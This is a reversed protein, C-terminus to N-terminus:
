SELLSLEHLALWSQLDSLNSSDTTAAIVIFDSRNQTSSNVQETADYGCFVYETMPGTFQLTPEADGDGTQNAFTVSSDVVGVAAMVDDSFASRVIGAGGSVSGNPNTVVFMSCNAQLQQWTLPAPHTNGWPNFLTFRDTSASYGTVVYAHGGILGAGVSGNTGITVANGANVSNILTQKSSSSLPYNTSNHGLVQSNTNSMWGGEISAYRNTGDRGSKGLENWQAYAKEALAIWLPTNSATASLGMGSYALTGNSFTPLRRNVTVYSAVGTGSVFGSSILGNQFFSGMAGGFFRVTFTDDGNDIFMNQIASSNKAAISIMSAIFYCDGLVGQRSQQITPAGVFLSGTANRYSIGSGVLTPEDTGLFWKDVLNNVHTATSGAVLNGLAQGRYRLNAPNNTVLSRALERVHAPMQFNTQASALFRLDSLEASSINGNSVTSRILQMMEARSIEGDGYLTQLLAAIAPDQLNANTASAVVSVAAVYSASGIRATVRYNGLTTGATFMGASNITGGTASWAISSNNGVNNGFQDVASLRFELAAGRAVNAGGPTVSVNSLNQAVRVTINVSLTDASATIVYDGTRDFIIHSSNNTTALLAQADAPVTTTTWTFDPQMPMPLGFQDVARVGLSVGTGNITTLTGLNQNASNTFVARTVTQAVNFTAFSTVSGTRLGVTYTGARNFTLTANSGSTSLAATGGTPASSTVSTIAPLNAIANGFQDYGRVAVRSTRTAVDIPTASSIASDDPNLLEITTVTSTVLLRADFTKGGGIVRITYAGAQSFTIDVQNRSANLIPEAGSPSLITQWAFEPQQALVTGFQNRAFVQLVQNVATVTTPSSAVVPRNQATSVHLGDLASVVNVSITQTVNQANIRVNYLGLQNFAISLNSGSIQPIIRGSLPTATSTVTVSPPASMVNGFQDIGRVLANLRSTAIELPANTQINDGSANSIQLATLSPVVNLVANFSRNAAVARLGFSGTRDFTARVQSGTANLSVVSGSPKIPNTWVITPQRDMPLNFQDVGVARFTESTTSLTLPRNSTLSFGRPNTVRIDSLVQVVNVNVRSTATLGGRDRVTVQFAYQGARNFTVATNAAANSNNASFVPNADRPGSVM